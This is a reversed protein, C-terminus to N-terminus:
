MIGNLKRGAGGGGEGRKQGYRLNAGGGGAFNRYVARCVQVDKELIKMMREKADSGM